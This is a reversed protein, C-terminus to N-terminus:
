SVQHPLTSMLGGMRCLRPLLFTQTEGPTLWCSTPPESKRGRFHRRRSWTRVRRGGEAPGRGGRGRRTHGEGLARHRTKEKGGAQIIEELVGGRSDSSGLWHSGPWTRPGQAWAEPGPKWQGRETLHRWMSPHSVRGSSLAWDSEGGAEVLGAGARQCEWCPRRGSM